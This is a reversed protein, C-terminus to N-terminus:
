PADGRKCRELHEELTEAVDAGDAVWLPRMVAFVREATSPRRQTADSNSSSEGAVDMPFTDRLLEVPSKGEALGAAEIARYLEDPLELRQSM